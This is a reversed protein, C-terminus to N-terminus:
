SLVLSRQRTFAARYNAPHKGLKCFEQLYRIEQSFVIRL